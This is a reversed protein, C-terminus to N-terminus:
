DIKGLANAMRVLGEAPNGPVLQVRLGTAFRRGGQKGGLLQHAAKLSLSRGSPETRDEFPDMGVYHINAQPSTRCAVEIMRLARRGDGVGIEVIKKAQCRRIARYVPRDGSPKSLYGLCFLRLRNFIPLTVRGPPM